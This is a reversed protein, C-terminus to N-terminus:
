LLTPFELLRIVEKIFVLVMSHASFPHKLAIFHAYKSLRDVVLLITDNGESKPLGEIFDMTVDDWVSSPISLPQLLGAFSLMSNKHQQCITCAAVYKEIDKKMGEWYLKAQMRKYTKLVGM